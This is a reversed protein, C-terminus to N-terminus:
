ANWSFESRVSFLIQSCLGPQPDQLIAVTNHTVSITQM